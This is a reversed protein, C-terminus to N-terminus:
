AVRGAQQHHPTIDGSEQFEQFQNDIIPVTLGKHLFNMLKDVDTLNRKIVLLQAYNM